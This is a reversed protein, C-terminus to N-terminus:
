RAPATGKLWDSASAPGGTGQALAAGAPLAALAALVALDTWRM